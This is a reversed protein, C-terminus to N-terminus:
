GLFTGFSLCHFWNMGRGRSRNGRSLWRRNGNFFNFHILFLTQFIHHSLPYGTLQGHEFPCSFRARNDIGFTKVHGGGNVKRLMFIRIRYGNFFEDFVSSQQPEQRISAKMTGPDITYEAPSTPFLAVKKIEAKVYRKGNMRVTEKEIEREMPFEEMWFGSLQAEKEFGEYRTDYRTYLAYTLLVQENPYVSTKDVWARVFINDDEPHFSPPPEDQVPGGSNM